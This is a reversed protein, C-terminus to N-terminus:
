KFQAVKELLQQKYTRGVDLTKGTSLVVQGGEGRIYKKLHKLNILHSKHIRLFGSPVLLEEFESLSRSAMVTKKDAFCINTYRGDAECWIITNIETFLLGELTPVALSELAKINNVQNLLMRIQAPFKKERIKEIAKQIADKLMETEYPKLLYDLAAFRIARIAYQDYATTFIISQQVSPLRELMEFGNMDPMEIDLFIIDPQWQKIAEIGQSGNECVQVVEIERGVKALLDKLQKRSMPDDDVIIATISNLNM